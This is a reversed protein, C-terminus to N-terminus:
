AAVAIQRKAEKELLVKISNNSHIGRLKANDRLVESAIKTAIRDEASIRRKSSTVSANWEPKEEVERKKAESVRSAFSAKSVRSVHSQYTVQSASDGRDAAPVRRAQGDAEQQNAQNWEEAMQEKWNPAQTIEHVRDKIIALAQRIEYDEMYKEYDLEYAFELLDDIEAEKVEETQKETM